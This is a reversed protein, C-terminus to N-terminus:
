TIIQGANQHRCMFMDTNKETNAELGAEKSAGLSSERNKTVISRSKGLSDIDDAYVM